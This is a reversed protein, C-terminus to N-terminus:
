AETQSIFTVLTIPPPATLALGPGAHFAIPVPSKLPSPRASMRHRFVLLPCAAIQSMLLLLKLQHCPWDLGLGPGPRALSRFRAIEILVAM